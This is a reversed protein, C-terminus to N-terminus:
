VPKAKSAQVTALMTHRLEPPKSGPTVSATARWDREASHSGVALMARSLLRTPPKLDAREVKLYQDLISFADQRAGLALLAEVAVAVEFDRTGTMSVLRDQGIHCALAHAESDLEQRGAKLALNGARLWRACVDNRPLGAKVIGDVVRMAADFRGEFLSWELRLTALDFDNVLDPHAEGIGMALALWHNAEDDRGSDFYLGGLQAAARHQVRYSGRKRGLEFQCEYGQIAEDLLGALHLATVATHYYKLPAVGKTDVQRCHDMLQRGLSAARLRDGLCSAALIQFELRMPPGVMALDEESTEGIAIDRLDNRGAMDACKLLLISAEVRHAPKGNPARICRPLRDAIRDDSRYTHFHARLDAIEVDDHREDPRSEIRSAGRVVLAFENAADAALILSETIGRLSEASQPLSAAENLM